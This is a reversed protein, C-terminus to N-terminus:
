SFSEGNTVSDLQAAIQFIFSSCFFRVMDVITEWGQFFSLITLRFFLNVSCEILIHGEEVIDM